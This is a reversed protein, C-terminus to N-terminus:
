CRTMAVAVLVLEERVGAARGRVVCVCVEVGEGERGGDARRVFVTKVDAANKKKKRELMITAGMM